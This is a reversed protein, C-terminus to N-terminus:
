PKLADMRQWDDDVPRRVFWFRWGNVNNNSIASAAHSPSTRFNGFEDIWQSNLIQAQHTKGKYTARFLTGDPFFVNSYWVGGPQHGLLGMQASIPLGPNEAQGLPLEIQSAPLGLLRRIVENFSDSENVWRGFLEQYVEFDVDLQPM